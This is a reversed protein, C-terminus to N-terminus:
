TSVNGNFTIKRIRHNSKDTVYIDGNADAFIGLPNNFMALNSTTDLFGATGTGAYTSTSGSPLIKRIVNNNHDAVYVNGSGDVAVGTPLNFRAVSPVGNIFGTSGEGSLTYVLRSGSMIKRIRHNYKDAVYIHGLLDCAVDTPFNFKATDAFGNTTGILGTGAYTTVLGAPTIKRIRNNFQDAVYVNGALDCALGTPNNFQASAGFGDLFGATGSGALTSVVGISSIKRIRHNSFDAVYVNGFTDAALGTPLNFMAKTGTDNAFGQSSGAYVSVANSSIQLEQSHVSLANLVILLFLSITLLTHNKNM